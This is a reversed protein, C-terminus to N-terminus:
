RKKGFFFMLYGLALLVLTSPESVTVANVTVSTSEVDASLFVGDADSLTNTSLLLPSVGNEVGLFSVTALIFDPAQLADLDDALDLSLEFLNVGGPFVTETSISGLGFLDLQNGLVPDGFTVSSFALIDPDFLIDVDFASLSPALGDALDSISLSVTTTDGVEISPFSADLSIVVAVAPASYGTVAVIGLLFCGWLRKSLLKSTTCM